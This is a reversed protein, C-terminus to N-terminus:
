ICHGVNIMKWKEEWYEIAWESKKKKKKKKKGRSEKSKDKEPSGKELWYPWCNLSGELGELQMIYEMVEVEREGWKHRPHFDIQRPTEEWGIADKCTDPHYRYVPHMKQRIENQSDLWDRRNVVMYDVQIQRSEKVPNLRDARQRKASGGLWPRWMDGDGNTM